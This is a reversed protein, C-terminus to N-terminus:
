RAPRCRLDTASDDRKPPSNQTSEPDSERWITDQCPTSINEYGTSNLCNHASLGAYTNVAQTPVDALPEFGNAKTTASKSM